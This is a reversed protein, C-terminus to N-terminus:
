LAAVTSGRFYFNQALSHCLWAIGEVMHSRPLENCFITPTIARDADAVVNATLFGYLFKVIPVMGVLELSDSVFIIENPDAIVMM